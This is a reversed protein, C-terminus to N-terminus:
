EDDNEKTDKVVEPKKKKSVRGTNHVDDFRVLFTTRYIRKGNREGALTHSMKTRLGTENMVAVVAKSSGVYLDIGEKKEDVKSVFTTRQLLKMLMMMYRKIKKEDGRLQIIAEFYGGSQRSCNPCMDIIKKVVYPKKIEIDGGPKKITFTIEGKDMDYDAWDHDGKCKTAVIREVTEQDYPQWEGRFQVNGCKKCIRIEMEEPIKVKFPYCDPCFADIFQVGANTRGCKPCIILNTGKM